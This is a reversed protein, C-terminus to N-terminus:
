EFIADCLSIAADEVEDYTTTTSGIAIKNLTSVLGIFTVVAKGRSYSANGKTLSDRIQMRAKELAPGFIDENGFDLLIARMFREKGKFDCIYKIMFNRFGSADSITDPIMEELARNYDKIIEKVIGFIGNYHLYFTSRRIGARACLEKVTMKKTSGKEDLLEFFVDHIAKETKLYGKNKNDGIM